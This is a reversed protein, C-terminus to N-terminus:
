KEKENSQGGVEILCTDDESIGKKIVVYSDTQEGITVPVTIVNGDKDYQKVKASTGDISSVAAKPLYSVNSLSGYNMTVTATTGTSLSSDSNDLSVQVDYTVKSASSSTSATTGISDIKGTLAKGRVGSMAVSVKEGVSIDKIHAQDVEITILISKTDEYNVIATKVSLTDDAKYGVSALKGAQSATIVGDKLSNLATQETTLTDLKKQASDVASKLTAVTNDYTTQANQGDVVTTDHTNQIKSKGTVASRLATEYSNQLQSLNNQLQQEQQTADQVQKNYNSQAQASENQKQSATGQAKQLDREASDVADKEKTLDAYDTKLKNAQSDLNATSLGAIEGEVTKQQKQYAGMADKYKKQADDAAKKADDAAAKKEDIQNDTYYTNNALADAYTAIKSQATDLDSKTDTVKQDLDALSSKYDSDAYQASTLTTEMTYQAELVGIKYDEQAKTLTKTADTVADNYYTQAKAVSEPTLKMLKDGAAVTDGSAVYVEKVGIDTVTTDFAALQSVTAQQTTGTGTFDLSLDGQEMKVERYKAIEATQAFLFHYSVAGGSVAIVLVIAVIAVAKKGRRKKWVPKQLQTNEETKKKSKLRIKM